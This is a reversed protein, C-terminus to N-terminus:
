RAGAPGDDERAALEDAWLHTHLWKNYDSTLAREHTPYSQGELHYLEVQPMYWTERGMEHLRLCLDSDEYDGRIYAGRLGGLERYLETGILMCAGTVAPVSRALNAAPFDRHLGKFYHENSWLYGGPPRDFYLGAHQISEDEYLLKPALAGIVPNAEYFEVMRSLWGPTDPLVDSNLLLLMRGRALSAGMNNAIAFGGNASLTVLRFPVGYLNFLERAVGRAHDAQEPSDLVYVLDASLIEPDHVFQAMQQELFEIRQYLPVIVTVEPAQPPRGLEDILDIEVGEAQREGLRALAPQAHQTRLSGAPLEEAQLDQLIMTRVSLPDDVVQPVEVEIRRGHRQGAELIWGSALASEIPAEFYAIFGRRERPSVNFLDAVDQRPYRFEDGLIDIACGEPTVLRLHDLDADGAFIWGKIYFSSGNVRWLGDVHVAYDAAADVNGPPLKPRVADRLIRLSQSVETSGRSRRGVDSVVLDLLETRTEADLKALHHSGLRGLSVTVHEIRPELAVPGGPMDLVVQGQEPLPERRADPHLILLEAAEGSDNDFLVIRSGTVRRARDGHLLWGRIKRDLTPTTSSVVALLSRGGLFSVVELQDVLRIDGVNSFGSKSAPPRSEARM